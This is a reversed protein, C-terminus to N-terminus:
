ATKASVNRSFYKNLWTEASRQARKPFSQTNAIHSMVLRSVEHCTIKTGDPIVVQWPATYLRGVAITRAFDKRYENTSRYEKSMSAPVIGGLERILAMKEKLESRHLIDHTASAFEIYGNVVRMAICTHPDGSVSRLYQYRIYGSM